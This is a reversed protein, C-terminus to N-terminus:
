PNPTRMNHTWGRRAADRKPAHFAWRLADPTVHHVLATLKEQPKRTAAHRVREAAQIVSERSQTRRM